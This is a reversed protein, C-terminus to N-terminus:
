RIAMDLLLLTDEAEIGEDDDTTAAAQRAGVSASHSRMLRRYAEGDLRGGADYARLYSALIRDRAAAEGKGLEEAMALLQEFAELPLGDFAAAPATGLSAAAMRMVVGRVKVLGLQVAPLLFLHANEQTVTSHLHEILQLQLDRMELRGALWLAALSSEATLAPLTHLSGPECHFKYMYDLISEFINACTEPISLHVTKIQINGLDRSGSRQWPERLVLLVADGRTVGYSGITRWDEDIEIDTDQGKRFFYRQREKSLCRLKHLQGKLESLTSSVRGIKCTTGDQMKVQIEGDLSPQSPPDLKEEQYLRGTAMDFFFKSTCCVVELHILYRSTGGNIVVECDAPFHEQSSRWHM